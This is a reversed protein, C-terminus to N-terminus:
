ELVVIEERSVEGVEFSLDRKVSRRKKKPDSVIMAYEVGVGAWLSMDDFYFNGKEDTYAVAKESTGDYVAVKIGALPEKTKAAVVTGYLKTKIYNEQGGYVCIEVDRLRFGEVNKGRCGTAMGISSVGLLSLAAACSRKLMESKSLM